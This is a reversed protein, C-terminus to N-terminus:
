LVDKQLYSLTMFTYFERNSSTANLPPLEAAEEITPM